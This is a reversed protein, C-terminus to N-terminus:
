FFMLKTEQIFCVEIRNSQILFSVRKGKSPIGDGRINYLMLNM